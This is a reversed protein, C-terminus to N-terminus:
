PPSYGNEWTSVWIVNNAQGNYNNGSYDNANGNLPWWGVLHQLDIPAGGIGEQYLAQIENASLSTNYLQVNAISGNFSPRNFDVGETGIDFADPTIQYVGTLTFLQSKNNEYMVLNTGSLTYAVFVWTNKPVQFSGFNGGDNGCDDLYLQDNLVALHEFPCAWDIGFIGEWNGTNGKYYIWASVTVPNTNPIALQTSRAIYQGTQGSFQAVYEPLEGQCEGELSIFQTSGQGYPRYVQCSGPQAKPAFTYPNLIGLSALAGLVISIVLIAWGYTM